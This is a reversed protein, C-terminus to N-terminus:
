VYLNFSLRFPQIIRMDEVPLIHRGVPEHCMLIKWTKTSTALDNVLWNYQTSGLTYPTYQDLVVFHVPGYDFSYYYRGSAYEPYPFYKGFLAGAGEHNGMAALYPLKALMSQINTYQPDFFENTWSSETDGYQVCDGNMLILSQSAPKLAIENLIRGAVANHDAPNTRTDGYAYFSVKTANANAGSYFTGTKTEGSITVKYFYKVGPTLGTLIIKHQHSSGYETTTKTGTSYTNDKGWAITGSNTSLTQWVIMMETNKATYLLYPAKGFNAGIAVSIQSFSIVYIFLSILLRKM